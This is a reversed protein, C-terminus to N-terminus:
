AAGAAALAACAHGSVAASELTAPLGTATWDGALWLGRFPTAHGPRLVAAGPPLSVTARREKLVLTRRPTLRAAEPFYARLDGLASHVLTEPSQAALDGAASRVFTVAHVGAGDETFRRRNFMWHWTGGVLGAFPVESIPSGFWFYVSVIATEALTGARAFHPEEALAPPLLDLMERPPVALVVVGADIRGGDALLVGTARDRAVILRRAPCRVRVESGRARLWHVAPEAYLDSLGVRSLGVAAGAAGARMTRRLVAALGAMSAVAPDDNLVALAMPHWFRRRAELSQGTSELWAAVTLPELAVEARARTAAAAARVLGLREGLGLGPYRLLAVMGALGGPARPQRFAGLRGGPEVLPIEPRAQLALRDRSGLRDLFALAETCSGVLIHQGNDIVSGTTPDTWSRARGGAQPRAELVTVRAGGAALATAAALGAFGAGVVVADPVGTRATM